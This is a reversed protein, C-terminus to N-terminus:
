ELEVSLDYDRQTVENNTQHFTILNNQHVMESLVRESKLTDNMKRYASIRTSKVDINM